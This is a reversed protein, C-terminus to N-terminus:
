IMVGKKTKLYMERKISSARDILLKGDLHDIEHQFAVSLLGDAEIRLKKNDKSLGEVVMHAKRKTKITFEPVSLCGEEWEIEGESEVIVPNAIQILNSKKGETKDAVTVDIVCIRKSVGVQPAALGVGPAAYMTEAMDDMLLVLESSVKEIEVARKKLVPNPYKVIQLLSM